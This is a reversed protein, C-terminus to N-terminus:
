LTRPFAKEPDVGLDVIATAVIQRRIVGRRALAHLTAIVISEADVEFFRRLRKRSDSRGFGDTGLTTLGGPIWRAVQDPVIKMYDTVAVFPGTENQLVQDLYSVRPEAEPHLMNWREVQLAETRLAKYSTASWVDASVQYREALIEQAHLASRLLPGSGLIHAKAHQGDVGRRFRYLGKLIGNEVGRPMEPMEYNENYLTLYYFVNEDEAYMRRMGEHIIVAVEYAFTADYALLTPVTTALV